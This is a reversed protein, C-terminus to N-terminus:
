AQLIADSDFPVGASKLERALERKWDANRGFEIWCIGDFDSPKEVGPVILAAVHPTGFKGIFFGLEFVVNQRARKQRPGGALGGDDDPTMLIVAFSSGEAEEQFKTLLNRGRNPRQHLVIDELGIKKLFLAVENKANEDRGHVIFIKRSAIVELRSTDETPSLVVGRQSLPHQWPDLPSPSPSLFEQPVPKLAEIDSRRFEVGFAQLQLSGNKVWTEFDGTRWDQTLAADGEAWWFEPPIDADNCRKGGWILLRARARVLQARANRCIVIEGHPLFAIAAAASMWDNGDSSTTM